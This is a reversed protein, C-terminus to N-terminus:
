GSRNTGARRPGIRGIYPALPSKQCLGTDSCLPPFDEGGIPYPHCVVPSVVLLRDAIGSQRVVTRGVNWLDGVVVVLTNTAFEFYAISRMHKSNFAYPHDHPPWM